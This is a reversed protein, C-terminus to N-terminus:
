GHLVTVWAPGAGSAMCAPVAQRARRRRGRRRRMAAKLADVPPASLRARRGPGPPTLTASGVLMVASSTALTILSASSTPMAHLTSSSAVSAGTSPAHEVSRVNTTMSCSPQALGLSGASTLCARRGGTSTRRGLRRAATNSFAATSAATHLRRPLASILCTAARLADGPRNCSHQPTGTHPLILAAFCAHSLAPRNARTLVLTPCHLCGNHGARCRGGERGLGCPRLPPV